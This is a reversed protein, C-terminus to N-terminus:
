ILIFIINVFMLDFMEEFKELKEEVKELQQKHKEELEEFIKELQQKHKEELEEVIKELQLKELKEEVNGLKELQQKQQQRLEMIEKTSKDTSLSINDLIDFAERGKHEDYLIVEIPNLKNFEENEIYLEWRSCQLLFKMDACTKEWELPGFSEEKKGSSKSNESKIEENTESKLKKIIIDKTLDIEAIVFKGIKLFAQRVQDSDHILFAFRSINSLNGMIKVITIVKNSENDIEKTKQISAAVFSMIAFNILYTKLGPLISKFYFSLEFATNSSYNTKKNQKKTLEALEYLEEIQDKTFETTNKNGM